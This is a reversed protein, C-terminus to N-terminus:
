RFCPLGLHSDQRVPERSSEVLVRLRPDGEVDIFGADRYHEAVYDAVIPYDSIFGEDFDETDAIVVPVSEERLRSVAREQFDASTYLSLKFMPQGGAFTRRAFVPIEHIPGLTLVRDESATCEALYRSAVLLGGSEANSWNMPPMQGLQTRVDRYRRM